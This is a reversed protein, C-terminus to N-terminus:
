RPKHYTCTPAIRKLRSSYLSLDLYFYDQKENGSELIFIAYQGKYRIIGNRTWGASGVQASDALVASGTNFGAGGILSKKCHKLDLTQYARSVPDVYVKEIMSGGVPIEHKITKEGEYYFVLEEGNKPNNDMDVRYLQFNGMGYTPTGLSEWDEDTWGTTDQNAPVGLSKRFDFKPCKEQYSKLAPGDYNDTKVIPQLHEINAQKKFDEYFAKCFPEDKGLEPVFNVSKMIEIIEQKQADVHGKDGATSSTASFLCVSSVIVAMWHPAMKLFM